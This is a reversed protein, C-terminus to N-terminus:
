NRLKQKLSAIFKESCDGAVLNYLYDCFRIEMGYLGFKLDHIFNQESVAERVAPSHFGHELFTAGHNDLIQVVADEIHKKMIAETTTM